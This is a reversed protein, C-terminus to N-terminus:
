LTNVFERLAQKTQEISKVHLCEVGQLHVPYDNGIESLDDGVFIIEDKSCGFFQIMKQIGYGKDIGKLTVDLSTTGGAKVDFEPLMRKLINIMPARKKHDIDWNAKLELPAMQGFASFTIQTKRDEVLEGYVKEPIKFGVEEFMLYFAEIIRKRDDEPLEKSYVLEQKGQTYKYFCAGCTPFLYLNNLLLPDLKLNKLYTENFSSFRGGSILSVKRKRMLQSLLECTEEDIPQKSLALTKDIDFVFLKKNPLNKKLESINKSIM